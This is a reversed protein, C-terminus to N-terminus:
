NEGVHYTHFDEVQFNYVTIPIDTTEYNIDDVVLIQGKSNLLKDGIYLEGANVFGVEKVYFPHDYTTKIM